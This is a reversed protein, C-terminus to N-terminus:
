AAHDTLHRGVPNLNALAATWAAPTQLRTKRRGM